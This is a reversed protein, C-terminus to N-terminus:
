RLFAKGAKIGIAAEQAPPEALQQDTPAALGRRLLGGLGPVEGVEGYVHRVPNRISVEELFMPDILESAKGPSSKSVGEPDLTIERSGLTAEIHCIGPPLRSGLASIVGHAILRDQHVQLCWQSSRLPTEGFRELQKVVGDLKEEVSLM